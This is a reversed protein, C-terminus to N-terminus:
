LSICNIQSCNICHVKRKLCNTIPLPWHKYASRSIVLSQAKIIQFQSEQMNCFFGAHFYHRTRKCTGFHKTGTWIKQALGLTQSCKTGRWFSKHRCLFFKVSHLDNKQRACFMQSQWLIYTFLNKTQCLFNPGAWFMKPGTFPCLM